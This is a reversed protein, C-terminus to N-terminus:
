NVTPDNMTILSKTKSNLFLNEFSQLNTPYQLGGAPAVKNSHSINVQDTFICIHQKEVKFASKDNKPKTKKNGRKTEEYKLSESIAICMQFNDTKIDFEGYKNGTQTVNAKLQATDVSLVVSISNKKKSKKTVKTTKSKSSTRKQYKRKSSDDDSECNDSANTESDSPAKLIASRCMHFQRGDSDKNEESGSLNVRTRILEHDLNYDILYSIKNTAEGLVFASELPPVPSPMWMLLDNLFCNYLDNLFKQDAILVKLVPLKLTLTTQSNQKSQSIFTLMESRNGANVIRRNKESSILSHIRSFPGHTEEDEDSDSGVAKSRELNDVSEERITERASFKNAKAVNINFNQRLSDMDHHASKSSSKFVPDDSLRQYDSVSEREEIVPIRVLCQILEDSKQQILGFHIPREKRSYQYYANLQSSTINLHLENPNSSNPNLVTHFNFDFIHLTLVQDRLQRFASMTAPTLKSNDVRQHSATMTATGSSPKRRLDAIPFRVSLKVVQACKIQFM